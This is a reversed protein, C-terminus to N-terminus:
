AVKNWSDTLKNYRLTFTDNAALVTPAGNLEAAGNKNVTFTSVQRKCTVLAEQGDALGAVAPLVLTGTALDGTPRILAWQNNADDTMNITFGDGPTTVTTIFAPSTFNDSFFTLLTSLSMKRADGNSSQYVALLDAVKAVDITPLENITTM